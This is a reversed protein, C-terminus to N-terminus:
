NKFRVGVTYTSGSLGYHLTAEPVGEYKRAADNTLNAGQVYLQLQDTFDWKASFSLSEDGDYFVGDGGSGIKDMYKSRWNYGFRVGFPGKEYYGVLNINYKSLSEIPLRSRTRADIFPTSSDIYSFTANAGFGDFPEPLFSFPQQVMFEVGDIRGGSGNYQRTVRFVDGEITEPLQRTVIFSELDKYFGALSIVQGGGGYYEVSMDLQNVRFPQLHPNGATGTMASYSLTIAPSLYKTDPRAMVRAAGFRLLLDDSLELRLAASPLFDDYKEVIHVPTNGADNNQTGDADVETAVYRMGANGTYALGFLTDAFDVQAYGAKIPEEVTYSSLPDYTRPTCTPVFTVCAYKAGGGFPLPVIFKKPFSGSAGDLLDGFDVVKYNDPYLSVQKSGLTTTARYNTRTMSIDSYRAGFEIASVPGWALDYKGDLEGVTESADYHYLNDFSTTFVFKTPDTLNLTSPLSISPVETDRFDFGIYTSTATQDRLFTQGYDQKASTYAVQGTVTLKALPTWRGRLSGTYIDTPLDFYETNGQPKNSVTGAILTEQSSLVVNSYTSGTGSTPVAFWYRQRNTNANAYLFDATLALTDDPNWEVTGTVGIKQRREMLRQYRLDAIYFGPEGDGNPDYSIHNPNSNFATTLPTWGTNSDFSDESIHLLQYAAGVAVGLKGGFFSDSLLGSFKMSGKKASDKYIGEASLGFFPKDSHTPERSIINVTGGLSGETMSASPLKTVDMRAVLESPILTLVNYAGDDPGDQGRGYPSILTRGNFELRNQRLGRISIDSAEDIGRRLQVGSVRALSEAVNQDPLKGIDEAVISDVFQTSARKIDASRELSQRIGSVVVTEMTENTQAVAPVLSTAAL